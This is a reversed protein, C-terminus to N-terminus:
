YQLLKWMDDSSHPSIGILILSITETSVAGGNRWKGDSSWGDIFGSMIGAILVSLDVIAICVKAESPSSPVPPLGLRSRARLLTVVDPFLVDSPLGKHLVVLRKQTEVNPHVTPM